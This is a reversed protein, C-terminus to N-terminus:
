KTERSRASKRSLVGVAFELDRRRMDAYSKQHSKNPDQVGLVMSWRNRGLLDSYPGTGELSLSSPLWTSWVLYPGVERPQLPSPVVLKFSSFRPTVHVTM